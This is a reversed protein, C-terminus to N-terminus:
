ETLADHEETHVPQERACLKMEDALGFHEETYVLQEGASLKM